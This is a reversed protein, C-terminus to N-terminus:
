LEAAHNTGDDETRETLHTTRNASTKAMADARAHEDHCGDIYANEEHQTPKRGYRKPYNAKWAAIAQELTM